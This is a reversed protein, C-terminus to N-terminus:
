RKLEYLVERGLASIFCQDWRLNFDNLQKFFIFGDDKLRFIIKAQPKGSFNDLGSWEGLEESPETLIALYRNEALEQLFRIQPKTLRKVRNEIISDM